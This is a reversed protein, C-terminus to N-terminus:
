SRTLLLFHQPLHVALGVRTTAVVLDTSEPGAGRRLTITAVGPLLLTAAARFDGLLIRDRDIMRTRSVTIGAAALREILGDRVLEWYVFPHVVMGDCSGGTEEVEAAAGTLAAALGGTLPARRALPLDLLGQIAGDSTGRLLSENEVASLRVLVRHDVFAALLAPDDLLGKPVPVSVSLDTLRATELSPAFAAEPTTAYSTGSAKGGGVPPEQVYSVEGDAVTSVKLLHRVTYRPRTAFLPFAEPLHVRFPVEVDGDTRSAGIARAFEEGPSRETLGPDAFALRVQGGNLEAKATAGLM